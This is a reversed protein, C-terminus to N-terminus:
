KDELNIKNINNVVQVRDERIFQMIVKLSVGTAQSCEFVTANLAHSEVYEKVKKYDEKDKELCEPCVNSLVYGDNLLKHCRQCIRITSFNNNSVSSM